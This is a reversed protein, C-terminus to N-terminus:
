RVFFLSFIICFYLYLMKVIDCSEIKKNKLHFVGLIVTILFIQFPQLICDISTIWNRTQFLSSVKLLGHLYFQSLKKKQLHPQHRQQILHQVEVPLLQSVKMMVLFQQRSVHSYVNYQILSISLPMILEVLSLSCLHHRAKLM